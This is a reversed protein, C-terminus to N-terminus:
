ATNPRSGAVQAMVAPSHQFGIAQQQRTLESKGTNHLPTKRM